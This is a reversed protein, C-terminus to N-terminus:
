SETYDRFDRKVIGCNHGTHRNIRSLLIYRCWNWVTLNGSADNLLGVANGLRASHPYDEYSAAYFICPEKELWLQQFEKAAAIEGEETDAAVFRDYMEDWTDDQVNIYTTADNTLFSRLWMPNSSYSANVLAIGVSGSFLGAFMTAAEQVQIQVTVGAEQLNQQIISAVQEGGDGGVKLVGHALGTFQCFLFYFSFLFASPSASPSPQPPFAGCM